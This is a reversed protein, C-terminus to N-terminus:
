RCGKKKIREIGECDEGKGESGGDEQEWRGEDEEGEEAGSPMFRM